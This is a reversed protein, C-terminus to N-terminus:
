IKRFLEITHDSNEYDFIVTLNERFCKIALYHINCLISLFKKQSKNFIFLIRPWLLDAGDGDLPPEPALEPCPFEAFPEDLM